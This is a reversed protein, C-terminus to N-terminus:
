TSAIKKKQEVIAVASVSTASVIGTGTAMLSSQGSILGVTALTLGSALLSVINM